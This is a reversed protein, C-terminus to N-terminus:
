IFSSAYMLWIELCILRPLKLLKAYLCHLFIVLCMWQEQVSIYSNRVGFGIQVTLIFILSNQVHEGFILKISGYILMSRLEYDFSDPYFAWWFLPEIRMNFSLRGFSWIWDEDNLNFILSDRVERGFKLNIPEYVFYSRINSLIQVTFFFRIKRKLKLFPPEGM